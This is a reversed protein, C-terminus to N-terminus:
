SDGNREKTRSLTRIILSGGRLRSLFTHRMFVSSNLKSSRVFSNTRSDRRSNKKGSRGSQKRHREFFPDNSLSLLQFSNWRARALLIPSVFATSNRRTVFKLDPRETLCLHYIANRTRSMPSSLVQCIKSVGNGDPVRPHIPCRSRTHRIIESRSIIEHAM